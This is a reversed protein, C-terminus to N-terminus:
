LRREQDGKKAMKRQQKEEKKRLRLAKKEARTLGPFESDPGRLVLGPHMVNLIVLALLMPFADLMFPYIEDGVLPNSAEARDGFEILRYVIRMQTLGTLLPVLLVLFIALACYDDGTGGAYDLDITEDAGGRQEAAPADTSLVLDDPRLLHCRLPATYWHRGHIHVQRHQDRQPGLQKIVLRRREGPRHLLCHGALCIDVDNELRPHGM